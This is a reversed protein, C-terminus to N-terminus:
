KDTKKWPSFQLSRGLLEGGLMFLFVLWLWPTLLRTTRPEFGRFETIKEGAEGPSLPIFDEPSRRRNAAHIYQEESADELRYFGPEVPMFSGPSNLSVESDDPTTIHVPFQYDEGILVERGVEWEHFGERAVANSLLSAFIPPWDVTARDAALYSEPPVTIIQWNNKQALAREEGAQLVPTDSNRPQIQFIEEVTLRQAREVLRPRTFYDDDNIRVPRPQEFRRRGEIHWPFDLPATLATFNSRDFQRDLVVLRPIEAAEEGRLGHRDINEFGSSGIVILQARAPDEVAEIQDELLHRLLNIGRSNGAFYLNIKQRVPFSFYWRGAWAPNAGPLEIVGKKAGEEEPQWNVPRDEPDGTFVTAGDITLQVTTGEPHTQWTIQGEEGSFLSERVLGGQIIKETGIEEFPSYIELPLDTEPTTVGDLLSRRGDTVLIVRSNAPPTQDELWEQLQQITADKRAYDIEALPLNERSSFRGLWEPQPQLRGLRIEGGFNEFNERVWQKGAQLASEGARSQQLTPSNDIIVWYEPVEEPRAGALPQAFIYILVILMLVRWLANIWQWINKSKLRSKLEDDLWNLSPYDRVKIKKKQWWTFLLPLGAVPLLWLLYPSLFSM